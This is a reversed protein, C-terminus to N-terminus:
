IMSATVRARKAVNELGEVDLGEMRDCQTRRYRDQFVRLMVTAIAKEVQENPVATLCQQLALDCDCFAGFGLSESDYTDGLAFHADFCADHTRCCSDVADVPEIAGTADGCGAGCYHGWVCCSPDGPM